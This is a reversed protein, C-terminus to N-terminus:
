VDDEWGEIKIEAGSHRVYAMKPIAKAVEEPVEFYLGGDGFRDYGRSGWIDLFRFWDFVGNDAYVVVDANGHVNKRIDIRWAM